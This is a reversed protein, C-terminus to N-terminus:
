YPLNADITAQAMECNDRLVVRAGEEGSKGGEAGWVFWALYYSDDIIFFAEVEISTADTEEVPPGVREHSYNLYKKMHPYRNLKGEIEQQVRRALASENQM